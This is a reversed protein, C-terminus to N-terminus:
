PITLWSLCTLSKPKNVFRRWFIVIAWADTDIVPIPVTIPTEYCDKTFFYLAEAGSKAVRSVIAEANFNEFISEHWEPCHMDLHVKYLANKYWDKEM